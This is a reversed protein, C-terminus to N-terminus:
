LVGTESIPNCTMMKIFEEYDILGDGNLDAERIMDEVQDMPLNEGMNSLITQLEVADIYGNNDQDFVKFADKLDDEKQTGYKIM